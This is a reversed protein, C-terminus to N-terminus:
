KVLVLEEAFEKIKERPLTSDIAYTMGNPAEVLASTFEGGKAPVGAEMTFHLVLGSATTYTEDAWSTDELPKGFTRIIFYDGAQNTYGAEYFFQENEPQKGSVELSFDTPITKLLYASDTKSALAEASITNSTIQEPVGHEGNPDDVISIGHLDSLDWAINSEASLIEDLLTRQSSILVENGNRELTVRNGLLQYTDVDFYFTVLGMPHTIENNVLLKVEQQSRLVHVTHGNDWTEQGVLETAPDSRMKEFMFKSEADQAPNLKQNTVSVYKQQALSSQSQLSHYVTLPDETQQGDKMNDSNYVNSGDFAYVQLVKGTAKDTTVVRLNGSAPDSYSEVITDTGQGEPLDELSSYIESRIHEIGQTPSTQTQAEYARDLIQRAASAPTVNRAVFVVLTVLALVGAAASLISRKQM